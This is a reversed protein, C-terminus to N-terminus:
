MFLVENSPPFLEKHATTDQLSMVNGKMDRLGIHPKYYALTGDFSFQYLYVSHPSHKLFSDILKCIGRLSAADAAM